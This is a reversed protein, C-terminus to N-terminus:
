KQKERQHLLNHKTETLYSFTFRLQRSTPGDTIKWIMQGKYPQAAILTNTGAIGSHAKQIWAGVKLTFGIGSPCPTSWHHSDPLLSLAM